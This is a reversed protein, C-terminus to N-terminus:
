YRDRRAITMSGGCCACVALGALPWKKTQRTNGVRATACAEMATTCQPHQLVFAM